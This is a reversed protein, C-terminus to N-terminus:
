QNKTLFPSFFDEVLIKLTEEDFSATPPSGNLLDLINSIREGTWRRIAEPTNERGDARNLLPTVRAYIEGDTRHEYNGSFSRVLRRLDKRDCGAYWKLIDTREIPIRYRLKLCFLLRPLELRYDFQQLIARFVRRIHRIDHLVTMDTHPSPFAEEIPITRPRRQAHQIRYLDICLNRVIAGLYTRFVTTGRFHAKISPIRLLLNENLTQLVDDFDQPRFMGCHVYTKVIIRLKEQYLALFAHPDRNFLDIDTQNDNPVTAM